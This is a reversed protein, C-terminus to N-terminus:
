IAVCCSMPAFTRVVAADGFEKLGCGLARAVATRAWIKQKSGAFHTSQTSFSGSSTFSKQMVTREGMM